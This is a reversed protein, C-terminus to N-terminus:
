LGLIDIFILERPDDLYGYVPDSESRSGHIKHLEKQM